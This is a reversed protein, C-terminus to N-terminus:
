KPIVYNGDDDDDLIVQYLWPASVRNVQGRIPHIDLEGAILERAGLGTCNVIVDFEGFESISSLKDIKAQKVIGGTNKFRRM